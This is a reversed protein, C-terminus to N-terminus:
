GVSHQKATPACFAQSCQGALPNDQLDAQVARRRFQVVEMASRPRPRPCAFTNLVSPLEPKAHSQCRSNRSSGLGLFETSKEVLFLNRFVVSDYTPDRQPTHRSFTDGNSAGIQHRFDRNCSLTDVPMGDARFVVIQQNRAVNKREGLRESRDAAGEILFAFVRILQGLDKVASLLQGAAGIFWATQLIQSWTM